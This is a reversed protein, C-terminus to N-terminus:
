NDRQNYDPSDGRSSGRRPALRPVGVEGAQTPSKIMAGYKQIQATAEAWLAYAGCCASVVSEIAELLHAQLTVGRRIAAIKLESRLDPLRRPGHREVHRRRADNWVVIDARAIAAADDHGLHVILRDIVPSWRKVTSPALEAERAYSDFISRLPMAAKPPGSTALV